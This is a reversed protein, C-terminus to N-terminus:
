FVWRQPQQVSRVEGNGITQAPPPSSHFTMPRSENSTIDPHLRDMDSSMGQLHIAAAAALVATSLLYASHTM